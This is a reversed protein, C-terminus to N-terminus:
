PTVRDSPALFPAVSWAPSVGCFSECLTTPAAPNSSTVEVTHLSPITPTIMPPKREVLTPWGSDGDKVGVAHEHCHNAAHDHRDDVVEDGAAATTSSGAKVKSALLRTGPSM